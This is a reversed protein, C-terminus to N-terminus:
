TLDQQTLNGVMSHQDDPNPKQQCKEEEYHAMQPLRYNQYEGTQEKTARKIEIETQNTQESPSKSVNECLSKGKRVKEVGRANM